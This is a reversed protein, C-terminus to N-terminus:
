NKGELARYYDRAVKRRVQEAREDQQHLVLTAVDTWNVPESKADLFRALVRVEDLLGGGRARLLRQLRLESFGASELARGLGVSPQFSDSHIAMAQLIAGWRREREICDPRWDGALYDDPVDVIGTMIKWFGSGGYDTPTLRRLSALDAASLRGERKTSAAVEGIVQNLRRFATPTATTTM